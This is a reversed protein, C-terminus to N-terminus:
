SAYGRKYPSGSWDKAKYDAWGWFLNFFKALSGIATFIRYGGGILGALGASVLAWTILFWGYKATVVGFVAGVLASLLLRVAPKWKLPNIM